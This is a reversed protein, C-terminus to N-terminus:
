QGAGGAWGPGSAGGAWFTFLAWGPWRAGATATVAFGCVEAFVRTGTRAASERGPFLLRAHPCRVNLSWHSGFLVLRLAHRRERDREFEM